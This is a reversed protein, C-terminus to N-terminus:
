IKYSGVLGAPLLQMISKASKGQEELSEGSTSFLIRNTALYFFEHNNFAYALCLLHLNTGRGEWEIMGNWTDTEGQPSWEQLWKSGYDFVKESCHYKDVVIALECLETTESVKIKTTNLHLINCLLLVAEPNDDPLQIYWDGLTRTAQGEKFKDSLLAKFVSSAHSLHAESVQIIKVETAKDLDGVIILLAGSDCVVDTPRLNLAKIPSSGSSAALTLTNKAAIVQVPIDAPEVRAAIDPRLQDAM